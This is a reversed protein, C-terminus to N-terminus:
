QMTGIIRVIMSCGFDGAREGTVRFEFREDLNLPPACNSYGTNFCAQRAHIVAAAQAQKIAPIISDDKCLYGVALDRGIKAAVNQQDQPFKAFDRGEFLQSAPLQPEQPQQAGQCSIATNLKGNGVIAVDGASLSANQGLNVNIVDAHATITMFLISLTFIAPKMFRGFDSNTFGNFTNNCHAHGIM